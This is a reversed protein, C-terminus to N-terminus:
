MTMSMIGDGGPLVGMKKERAKKAQRCRALHNSLKIVPQACWPCVQGAKARGGYKNDPLTPAADIKSACARMHSLLEERSTCSDDGCGPCVFLAKDQKAQQQDPSVVAAAAGGGGKLAKMDVKQKGKRKVVDPLMSKKKVPSKKKEEKKDKVLNMGWARMIAGEVQKQTNGNEAQWTRQFVFCEQMHANLLGPPTQHGCYVCFVCQTAASNEDFLRRRSVNHVLPPPPSIVGSASSTSPTPNAKRTTSKNRNESEKTTEKERGGNAMVDSTFTKDLQEYIHSKELVESASKASSEARSMSIMKKKMTSTASLNNAASINSGNNYQAEATSLTTGNLVSSNFSTRAEKMHKAKRQRDQPDVGDPTMQTMPSESKLNPNRSPTVISSIRSDFNRSPSASLDHDLTQESNANAKPRSVQKGETRPVSYVGSKSPTPTAGSPLKWSSQM